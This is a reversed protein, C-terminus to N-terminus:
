RGFLKKARVAPLVDVGGAGSVEAARQAVLQDLVQALRADASTEAEELDGQITGLNQRTEDTGTQVAAIVKTGHTTVHRTLRTAQAESASAAEGVATLLNEVGLLVANQGEVAASASQVQAYIAGVGSDLRVLSAAAGESGVRLDDTTSGVAAVRDEIRALSPAIELLARVQSGLEVVASSLETMEARCQRVEALVTASDSAQNLQTIAAVAVLLSQGVEADRQAGVRLTALVEDLASSMDVLAGSADALTGQTTALSEIRLKAKELAEQAEAFRNKAPPAPKTVM